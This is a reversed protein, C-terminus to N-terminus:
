VRPNVFPNIIKLGAFKKFDRENDTAITDIGNSIATAALYADFIRNGALNHKIILDLGFYISAQNPVIIKLSELLNSLESIVNKALAPTSFKPHTLVRITELINQHAVKLDRFNDELFDRSAKNKPSDANIAYILINSDVLMTKLSRTFTM